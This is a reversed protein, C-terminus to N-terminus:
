EGGTDGRRVPVLTPDVQVVASPNGEGDYVPLRVDGVAAFPVGWIERLYLRIATGLQFENLRFESM